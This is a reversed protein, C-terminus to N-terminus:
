TPVHRAAHNDVGIQKNISERPTLLSVRDRGTAKDIRLQVRGEDYGKSVM